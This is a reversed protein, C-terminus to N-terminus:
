SMPDTISRPQGADFLTALLIVVPETGINRSAHLADPGEVISNGARLIVEQGATIAETQIGSAGGVAGYRDLAVEGAMVSYALEGSVIWAVRTGPHQLPAITGGPPVTLRLLSLEQGRAADPVAIGLEEIIAGPTRNADAADAAGTGQLGAVLVAGYFLAAAAVIVITALDLRRRRM